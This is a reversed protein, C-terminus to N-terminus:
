SSPFLCAERWTRPPRPESKSPGCKVVPQNCDRRPNWVNASSRLRRSRCFGKSHSCFMRLSQATFALSATDRCPYLSCSSAHRGGSAQLRQHKCALHWRLEGCEPAKEKDWRPAMSASSPLPASPRPQPKPAPPPPKEGAQFRAAFMSTCPIDHPNLCHTLLAAAASPGICGPPQSRCQASSQLEHRKEKPDTLIERAQVVEKSQEIVPHSPEASEELVKGFRLLWSSPLFMYPSEAEGDQRGGPGRPGRQIHPAPGMSQKM